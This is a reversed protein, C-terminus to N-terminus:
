HRKHVQSIHMMRRATMDAIPTAAAQSTSRDEDDDPQAWGPFWPRLFATYDRASTGGMFIGGAWKTRRAVTRAQIDAMPGPCGASPATSLTMQTGHCPSGNFYWVAISLWDTRRWPTM